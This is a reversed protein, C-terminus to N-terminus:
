ELPVPVKPARFITLFDDRDPFSPLNVKKVVLFGSAGLERVVAAGRCHREDGDDVFVVTDGGSHRYARIYSAFAASAEPPAWGFFLAVDPCACAALVEKVTIVEGALGGHSFSTRGLQTGRSGGAHVDVELARVKCGAARFRRAWYGTGCGIDLVPRGLAAVAHAAGDSAMSWAWRHSSALRLAQVALIALKVAYQAGPAAVAAVAGHLAADAHSAAFGLMTAEWEAEPILLVQTSLLVSREAAGRHGRLAQAVATELRPQAVGFVSEASAGSAAHADACARLLSSLPADRAAEALALVLLLKAEAPFRTRHLAAHVAVVQADLDLWPRSLCASLASAAERPLVAGNEVVVVLAECPLLRRM